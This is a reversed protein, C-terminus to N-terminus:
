ESLCVVFNWGGIFKFYSLVAWKSLEINKRSIKLALAMSSELLSTSSKLVLFKTKITLM